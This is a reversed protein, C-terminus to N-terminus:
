NMASEMGRGSEGDKEVEGRERGVVGGRIEKNQVEGGGGRGSITGKRWEKMVKKRKWGHAVGKGGTGGEVM